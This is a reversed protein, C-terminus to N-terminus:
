LYFLAPFPILRSLAQSIAKRWMSATLWGGAMPMWALGLYTNGGYSFNGYGTWCYVIDSAFHIEAMLAMYVNPAAMAAATQVDIPRM